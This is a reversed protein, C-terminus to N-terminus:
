ANYAFDTSGSSLVSTRCAGHWDSNVTNTAMMPSPREGNWDTPLGHPYPPSQVTAPAPAAELARHNVKGETQDKYRERYGRSAAKRAAKREEDTHYKKPRGLKKPVAITDMTTHLFWSQM